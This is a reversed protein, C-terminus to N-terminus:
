FTIAPNAQIILNRFADWWGPYDILPKIQNRGICRVKPPLLNEITFYDLGLANTMIVMNEGNKDVDWNYSSQLAFRELRMDEHAKLEKAWAQSKGVYKSQITGPKNNIGVGYFDIGIQGPPCVTIETFGVHPNFGHTRIIGENVAEWGDGLVDALPNFGNLDDENEPFALKQIRNEFQALSNINNFVEFAWYGQNPTSRFFFQHTLQYQMSRGRKELNM